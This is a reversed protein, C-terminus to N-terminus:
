ITIGEFRNNKGGHAYVGREIGGRYCIGIVKRWSKGREGQLTLNRM